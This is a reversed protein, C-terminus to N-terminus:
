GDYGSSGNAWIHTIKFCKQWEIHGYIKKKEFIKFSIMTYFFPMYIAFFCIHAYCYNNNTLIYDIISDSQSNIRRNKNICPFLIFHILSDLLITTERWIMIKGDCQGYMSSMIPTKGNFKNFRCIRM